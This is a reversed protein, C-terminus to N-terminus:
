DTPWRADPTRPPTRRQASEAALKVFTETFDGLLADPVGDPDLLKALGLGTGLERVVTGLAEAPMPLEVGARDAEAALIRAVALRGTAMRNAFAERLPPNRWAHVAFEIILVLFEPNDHVRRMWQDGWARPTLAGTDVARQIAELEHVRTATYDEFVALFLDDKGGFHWYIAGTTYGAQRAIEDLSARGFGARAFVHAAAAILEARTEDKREDRRSRRGEVESM